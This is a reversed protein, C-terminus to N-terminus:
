GQCDTAIRSSVSFKQVHEFNEVVGSRIFKDYRLRLPTKAVRLPTTAIRLPTTAVRLADM